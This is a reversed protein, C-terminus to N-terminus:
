PREVRRDDGLDQREGREIRCFGIMLMEHRAVRIVWIDNVFVQGFECAEPLFKGVQQLLRADSLHPMFCATTWGLGFPSPLRPQLYDQMRLVIAMMTAHRTHATKAPVANDAVLGFGFVVALGVAFGAVTDLACCCFSASSLADAGASSYKPLIFSLKRPM